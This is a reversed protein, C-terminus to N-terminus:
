WQSMRKKDNVFDRSSAELLEERRMQMRAVPDLYDDPLKSDDDSIKISEGETVEKAPMEAISRRQATLINFSKSVNKKPEQSKLENKRKHADMVEKKENIPKEVAQQELSVPHQKKVDEASESASGSGAALQELMAMPNRSTGVDPKRVESSDDKVKLKKRNAERYSSGSDTRKCNPASM